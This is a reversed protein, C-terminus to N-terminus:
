GEITLDLHLGDVHITVYLTETALELIKNSNTPVRADAWGRAWWTDVCDQKTTPRIHAPIIAMWPLIDSAPLLTVTPTLQASM